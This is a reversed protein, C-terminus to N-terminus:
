PQTCVATKLVLCCNSQSLVSKEHEFHTAALILARDDPLQRMMRHGIFNCSPPQQTAPVGRSKAPPTPREAVGLLLSVMLDRWLLGAFQAALEAPRGTLLGSAQAEAMIKRLAARSTARGISDLARAVEPAQIM